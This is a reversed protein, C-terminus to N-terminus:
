KNEYNEERIKPFVIRLDYSYITYTETDLYYSGKLLRLQEEVKKPFLCKSFM